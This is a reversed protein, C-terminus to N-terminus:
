EQEVIEINGTQINPVKILILHGTESAEAEINEPLEDLQVKIRLKYNGDREVSKLSYGAIRKGENVVAIVNGTRFFDDEITMSINAGVSNRAVDVLRRYQDASKIIAYDADKIGYVTMLCDNDESGNICNSNATYTVEESEYKVDEFENSGTMISVDAANEISKIGVTIGFYVTLLMIGAIGLVCVVSTMILQPTITKLSERAAKRVQRSKAAREMDKKAVM